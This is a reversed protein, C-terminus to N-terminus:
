KGWLISWDGNISFSQNFISGFFYIYLMSHATFTFLDFIELTMYDDHNKIMM